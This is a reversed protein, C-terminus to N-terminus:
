SHSSRHIESRHNQLPPSTCKKCDLVYTIKYYSQLITQIPTQNVYNKQHAIQTETQPFRFSWVGFPPVTQNTFNLSMTIQHSKAFPITAGQHNKPDSNHHNKKQIKAQNRTINMWRSAPCSREIDFISIYYVCIYIYVCM